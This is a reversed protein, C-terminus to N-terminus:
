YIERRLTAVDNCCIKKRLFIAITWEHMWSALLRM